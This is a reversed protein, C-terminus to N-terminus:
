RSPDIDQNPPPFSTESLVECIRKLANKLRQVQPVKDLGAAKLEAEPDAVFRDGKDRDLALLAIFIELEKM